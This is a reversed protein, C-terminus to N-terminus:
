FRCDGAICREGLDCDLESKCTHCQHENSCHLEPCDTDVLCEVCSGERMQCFPLPDSCQSNSNCEVCVGAAVACTTRNTGACDADERCRTACAHAAGQCVEDPGCQSSFLCQVCKRDDLDCHPTDGRCDSEATCAKCAHTADDCLSSACHEDLTCAVCAGSPVDCRLPKACDADGGCKGDANGSDVAGPLQLVATENVCAAAIWATAVWTGVVRRRAFTM